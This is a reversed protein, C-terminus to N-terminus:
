ESLYLEVSKLVVVLKWFLVMSQGLNYNLFKIYMVFFCPNTSLRSTPNMKDTFSLFPQYQLFLVIELDSYNLVHRLM